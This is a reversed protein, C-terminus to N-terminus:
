GSASEGQRQQFKGARRKNASASQKSSVWTKVKGDKAVVYTNVPKGDKGTTTKLYFIYGRREWTRITDFVRRIMTLAEDPRIDEPTRSVSTQTLPPLGLTGTADALAPMTPMRLINGTFRAGPLVDGLALKLLDPLHEVGVAAADETAVVAPGAQAVAVLEGEREDGVRGIGVARVNREDDGHGSLLRSDERSM